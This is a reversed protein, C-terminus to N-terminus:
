VPVHLLEQTPQTTPLQLSDAIEDQDAEFQLQEQEEASMPEEDDSPEEVEPEDDAVEPEDDFTIGLQKGPFGNDDLCFACLPVDVETTKVEKKLTSNEEDTAAVWRDAEKLTRHKQRQFIGTFMATYNECCTCHQIQFMAVAARPLWERQLEIRRIDQLMDNLADGSMPRKEKLAKRGDKLLQTDAKHALAEKLLDGFSFGNDEDTGDDPPLNDQNV